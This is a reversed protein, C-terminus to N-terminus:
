YIEFAMSVRLGFALYVPDLSSELDLPLFYARFDFGLIWRRDILWDLGVVAHLAWDPSRSGGRMVAFADTGLGFFPVVELIDLLYVVEIGGVVVHADPSDPHWGYAVRGGLTFADNIGWTSSLGLQPAGMTFDSSVALGLGADLGVTVTDEYARATSALEWTGLALALGFVRSALGRRPDL